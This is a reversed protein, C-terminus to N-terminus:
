YRGGATLSFFRDAIAPCSVPNRRINKDAWLSLPRNSLFEIKEDPFSTILTQAKTDFGPANLHVCPRLM